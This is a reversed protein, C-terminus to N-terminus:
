QENLIYKIDSVISDVLEARTGDYVARIHKDTDVLILFGSHGFGGPQAPDDMAWSMYSEECIAYISDLDGTLFQWTANDAGKEISYQKLVEVSDNYPDITHSVIMFRKESKMKDNLLKLTNALKPCITPCTTFFFDALYVKGELDKQTFEKGDQNIFRFDPITPYITDNVEKGDVTKVDVFYEGMIPLRPTKLSYVDPQPKPKCAFLVACCIGLMWTAQKM